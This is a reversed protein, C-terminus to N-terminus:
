IPATMVYNRKIYGPILDFGLVDSDSLLVMHEVFNKLENVNGPWDYNEIVNRVEVSFYKNTQQEENFQKLFYLSLPIIDAKRNKLSPIEVTITNILFFLDKRFKDKEVFD